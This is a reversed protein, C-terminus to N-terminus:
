SSIILELLELLGLGGKSKLYLAVFFFNWFGLAIVKIEFVLSNLGGM